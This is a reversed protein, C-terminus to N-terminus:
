SVLNCSINYSSQRKTLNGEIIYADLIVWRYFRGWFLILVIFGWYVQLTNLIYFSIGCNHSFFHIKVKLKFLANGTLIRVPNLMGSTSINFKFINLVFRKGLM